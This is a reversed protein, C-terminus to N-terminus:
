FARPKISLWVDSLFCACSTFSWLPGFILQFVTTSLLLTPSPSRRPDFAVTPYITSLALWPSSVSLSIFSSHFFTFSSHKSRPRFLVIGKEESNRGGIEVSLTEDESQTLAEWFFVRILFSLSLRLPDELGLYGDLIFWYISLYINGILEELIVFKRCLQHPVSVLRTSVSPNLFIKDEGILVGPYVSCSPFLFFFPYLIELIYSRAVTLGPHCQKSINYKFGRVMILIEKGKSDISGTRENVYGKRM